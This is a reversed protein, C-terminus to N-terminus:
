GYYAVLLDVMDGYSKMGREDGYSKLIGDYIKVSAKRIAGDRYQNWYENNRALDVRVCDPLADRIERAADPNASYLANYLYVYGSLYGSYEYVPDGSTLCALVGLFNCEQESAFGRQHAMEHAATSGLFCAPSAVNVNAEGTCACYFGTFDMRSMLWSFAMPKVGVDDFTLFPYEIELADYVHPADALIEDRPVNFANDDSRPVRGAADALGDAFYLTVSRLADASVPAARLGSKDQFSDARFYAGWMWCFVSILSLASLILILASKCARRLRRGRARAVAGVSWLLYGVGIVVLAACLWEMVSFPVHSCLRGLAAQAPSAIRSTWANMVARRQRLIVFATLAAADLASWVVFGAYGIRYASKKNGSANDNANYSANRKANDNANDNRTAANM